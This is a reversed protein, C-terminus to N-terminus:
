RLLNRLRDNTDTNKNSSNTNTKLIQALQLLTNKKQTKSQSKQQQQMILNKTPQKTKIKKINKSQQLIKKDKTSQDISVSKNSIKEQPNPIKNIKELKLGAFKDKKKKNNSKNSKIKLKIVENHVTDIEKNVKNKQPKKLPM